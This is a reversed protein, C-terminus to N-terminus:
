PTARCAEGSVGVPQGSELPFSFQECRQVVGVDGGDVAEFFRAAHARQDQFQDVPGRQGVANRFARDGDLFRQAIARCIASASSAACSFPTMWRSRFGALMLTRGSPVTFTSSKPRAFNASAGAAGPATPNDWDGAIVVSAIIVPTPCIRPVAAYMLGSCARPLGTSLRASMQANPQTSYSISM